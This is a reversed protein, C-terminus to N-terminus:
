NRSVTMTTSAQLDSTESKRDREMTRFDPVGVEPAMWAKRRHADQAQIGDSTARAGIDFDVFSVAVLM